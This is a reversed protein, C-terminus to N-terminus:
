KYIGWAAEAYRDHALPQYANRAIGDPVDTSDENRSFLEAFLYTPIEAYIIAANAVSKNISYRLKKIGLLM